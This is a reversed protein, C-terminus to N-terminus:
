RFKIITSLFISRLVFGTDASMVKLYGDNTLVVLINEKEEASSEKKRKILLCFVTNDDFMRLVRSINIHKCVYTYVTLCPTCVKLRKYVSEKSDCFAYLLMFRKKLKTTQFSKLPLVMDLQDILLSTCVM